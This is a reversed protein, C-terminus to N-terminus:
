TCIQIQTPNPNKVSSGRRSQFVDRESKSVPVCIEGVRLGRGLVDGSCSLRTAITEKSYPRHRSLTPARCFTGVSVGSPTFNSPEGIPHHLATGGGM